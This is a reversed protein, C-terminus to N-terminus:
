FPIDDDYMPVTNDHDHGVHNHEEKDEECCKTEAPITFAKVNKALYTVDLDTKVDDHKEANSDADQVGSHAHGAIGAFAEDDDIVNDDPIFGYDNAPSDDVSVDDFTDGAVVPSTETQGKEIASGFAKTMMMVAMKQENTLTSWWNDAHSDGNIGSVVAPKVADGNSGSANAKEVTIEPMQEWKTFNQYKGNYVISAACTKGKYTEMKLEKAPTNDVYSADLASLIDNRMKAGIDGDSMYIWVTKDGIYKKTMDYVNFVFHYKECPAIKASGRYAQKDKYVGGVRLLYQGADVSASIEHKQKDAVPPLIVSAGVAGVASAASLPSVSNVVSRVDSINM